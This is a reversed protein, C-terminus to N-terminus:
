EWSISIDTLYLANAASRIGLYEYDGEVTVEYTVKATSDFILSGLMDGQTEESYLDGPGAYPTNSGYFVVTRANATNGNWTVAIKRVKGGSTTTVIGSNEKARLQIASYSGASNGAYVAGSVGAKGSWDYYQGNTAVGTFDFDLVDVIYSGESRVVIKYSASGERYAYSGPFSATITATGNKEGIVVEGTTKDVQAVKEDSSSYTGELNNPNTLEPATFEAGPLVIFSLSGDGYALGAEQKEAPKVPAKGTYVAVEDLFFRCGTFTLVVEGEAGSITVNYENWTSNELIFETDGSLTAGKATITAKNEGAGWGAAKFSLKAKGTVDIARTTMYGDASSSGVKACLYAAASNNYTWGSEDFTFTTLDYNAISGTWKGDNGGTAKTFDDFSEYFFTEAEVSGDTAKITYSASDALYYDDGEFAATITATGEEGMLVVEGTTEDVLAVAENSSSYKVTVGHPNELTPATFDDNVDVEFETEAFSLEPDTKKIHASFNKIEWTGAADATSVYKFAFVVKEGVYDSIDVTFTEFPSWTGATAPYVNPIETYGDSGAVKIWLSGDGAAMFKNVCQDFTIEAATVDTLDIQPSVLWTEAAYNVRSIYATVKAGYSSNFSWITTQGEPLTVNQITFDGQSATFAEDYPLTKVVEEVGEEREANALDVNFTRSHSRAFQRAPIEKVYTAVDTTITLIGDYEGPLVVMKIPEADNKSAAVPKDEVVKVTNEEGDMLLELTSEDTMDVATLDIYGVGAVPASAEFQVSKVTEGQFAEDTSFVKFNIVSGLNMFKVQGNGEQARAAIEEQVEFPVGALPMASVQAGNQIDNLTIKVWEPTADSTKNEEDYPAYAYAMTGAPIATTSFLVVMKPDTTVDVNAYGKYNGVFMGVRDGSVWEVNSDGIVARTDDAIAFTYKYVGENGPQEMEARQCGALTLTAAAFVIFSRFINKM